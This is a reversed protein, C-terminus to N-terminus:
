STIEEYLKGEFDDNLYKKFANLVHEYEDRKFVLTNGPFWNVTTGIPEPSNELDSEDLGLKNGCMLIPLNVKTYGEPLARKWVIKQELPDDLWNLFTSVLGPTIDIHSRNLAYEELSIGDVLIGYYNHGSFKNFYTKISISNL